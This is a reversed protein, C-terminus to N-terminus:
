LMSVSAATVTKASLSATEAPATTVREVVTESTLAITIVGPRGMRASMWMQM